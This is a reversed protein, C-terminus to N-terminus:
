VTEGNKLIFERKFTTGTVEAIREMDIVTFSERKMKGNFSQPTTGLRRALEAVSIDERICLIKIQESITM